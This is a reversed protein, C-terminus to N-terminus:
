TWRALDYNRTHDAPSLQRHKWPTKQIRWPSVRRFKTLNRFIWSTNNHILALILHTIVSELVCDTNGVMLWATLIFTSIMFVIMAMVIKNASINRVSPSGNFSQEYHQGYTFGCYWLETLNCSVTCDVLMGNTCNYVLNNHVPNAM